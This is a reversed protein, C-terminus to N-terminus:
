IQKWTSENLLGRNVGCYQQLHTYLYGCVGNLLQSFGTLSDQIM